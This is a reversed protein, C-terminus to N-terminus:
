GAIRRRRKVIAYQIARGKRWIVKVDKRENDGSANCGDYLNFSM